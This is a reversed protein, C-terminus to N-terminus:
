NGSSNSAQALNHSSLLGFYDAAINLVETSYFDKKLVEKKPAQQDLATKEEEREADIEKRREFFKQENVSVSKEDKQSRYLEIRKLLKDFDPSGKVRESSKTRLQALISQDVMKYDQHGARKVEDSPLAYDLDAEGIDMAATIAPLVVDAPVGERQTSKGDPLYFQQITIKLAGMESPRGFLQQGLDLLSQVTGKGHTSPDGVVIGRRYDQIAGAFIESASASEKSTMVVLPGNWAVGSDEDDLVQVEGSPNKVQVVPGHDIFLGTLSVAETLSGGGNRSLDIVVADVKEERFKTLIARVDRTSSRFSDAKDPDRAAKMDLYFSPLDIYGVKMPSGDAKTGHDVVESRAASDELNIKARTINYIVLDGGGAPHVGLRVTTGASGRIKSVVDDLKLDVVDQMPGDVGQGVSVIRDGAKLRGDKDAAGGLVVSSITTFGDEMTLQAGIGELKLSMVIDFNTLTKEAMYTTHPDFSTTVATLFMELVEDADTQHWRKKVSDYRRHLRVKPDEDTKKPAAGEKAPAADERIKDGKLVLLSYKIQRRMRDRAEDESKPYEAADRDAPMSEQVSFDHDRDIEQHAMAVREDVRKLFTKFVTIAFDLNGAKVMEDIETQKKAFDDIDSQLFYMKMPDISRLFQDFARRSIEDDIPHKSLHNNLMIAAVNRVITRDKSRAAKMEEVRPPAPKDAASTSIVFCSSGIVAAAALLKMRAIRM